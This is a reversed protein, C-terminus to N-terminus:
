FGLAPGDSEDCRFLLFAALACTSQARSSVATMAALRSAASSNGGLADLARDQDQATVLHQEVGIKGLEIAHFRLDQQM